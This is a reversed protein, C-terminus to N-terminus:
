PEVRNRPVFEQISHQLTQAAALPRDDKGAMLEVFDITQRVRHGHEVGTPQQRM